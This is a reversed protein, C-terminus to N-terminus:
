LVMPTKFGMNGAFHQIFWTKLDKIRGVTWETGNNSKWIHIQLMLTTIQAENAGLLRFHAMMRNSESSNHVLDSM